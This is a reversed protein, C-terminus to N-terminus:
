QVHEIFNFTNLESHGGLRVRLCLRPECVTGSNELEVLLRCLASLIARDHWTPHPKTVQRRLICLEHRPVLVEVVLGSRRHSLLSLWGLVRVALLYVVRVIL